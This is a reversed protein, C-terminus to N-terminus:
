PKSSVISKEGVDMRISRRIRSMHTTDGYQGKVDVEIRGLVGGSHGSSQREDALDPSSSGEMRVILLM